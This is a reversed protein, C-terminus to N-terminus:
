HGHSATEVTELVPNPNRLRALYSTRARTNLDELIRYNLRSGRLRSVRSAPDNLDGFVLAETPCSQQCAAVVDGDRLQRGEKKSQIRAHNIRQV